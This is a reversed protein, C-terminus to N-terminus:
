KGPERKVSGSPEKFRQYYTTTPCKQGMRAHQSWPEGCNRHQCIPDVPNTVKQEAMLANFRDLTM